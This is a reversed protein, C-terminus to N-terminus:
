GAVAPATNLGSMEAEVDGGVPVLAGSLLNARAKSRRLKGSSTKPLSRPPVLIVRCNVGVDRKIDRKIQSILEARDEETRTRCQVLVAPVEESGHVPISIAATDGTRLGPIQEVVWEIDQPWLNRGNIIM